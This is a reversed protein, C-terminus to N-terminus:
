NIIEEIEKKWKEWRDLTWLKDKQKEKLPNLENNLEKQKNFNDKIKLEYDKTKNIINNFKNQLNFHKYINIGLLISLIIPCVVLISKLVKIM